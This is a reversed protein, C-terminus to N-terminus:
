RATFWSKTTSDSEFFDLMLKGVKRQGSNSQHTGDAVFDTVDYSFGDARPTSGNAWLYPGWSLWPAQVPGKTADFNLEAAGSLQSEILWKVSFGSEYAYPEPNLSTTAYGGYTRSSLYALRCNPFRKSILQVIRQLEAQLTQAYKPFGSSPGADAQKIWVVQVQDRTVGAQQLRQDVTAWYTAGRGDDTSQIVAATMGGQAGNVFQLQPHKKTSGRLEAEFGQSSQSTNSMGVSLLVVKGQSDPKGSANLPQVQRALKLGTAEHVAPRENKGGPYFGGEFNQYKAAGLETLPKLSKTDPSVPRGSNGPRAAGAPNDRATVRKIGVLEQSDAAKPKFFIETGAAFDKLKESLNKGTEGLVDTKDTLSFERDKGGSTIVIKKQELDLSKLTGRQIEQASVSASLELCLLMMLCLTRLM